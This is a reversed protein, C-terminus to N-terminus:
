RRGKAVRRAALVCHMCPRRGSACPGGPFGGYLNFAVSIAAVSQAANPLWGSLINMLSFSWSEICKMAAAPGSCAAPPCRVTSGGAHPCSVRRNLATACTLGLSRALCVMRGEKAFRVSRAAALQGGVQRRTPWGRSSGGAQSPRGAPGGGCVSGWGRRRWGAWWCRWRCCM